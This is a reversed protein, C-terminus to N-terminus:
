LKSMVLTLRDLIAEKNSLNSFGLSIRISNLALEEYGMAKIVRSPEVSGSSCASGSSVDLGALDFHILMVDAKLKKHVFCITNNSKNEFLHINKNESLLSEIESKFTELEKSKSYEAVTEILAYELSVIGQSNLTGSRIGRQQGGGRILPKLDFSRKYFSFGIGRLAGFKHGSYTFVDLKSNLQLFHSVKGVSQVADVYVMCGTKEKISEAISLDFVVGTENNMWTFHLLVKVAGEAKQNIQM